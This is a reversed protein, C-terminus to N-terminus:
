VLCIEEATTSTGGFGLLSKTARLSCGCDGRLAKGTVTCWTSTLLFSSELISSEIGRSGQSGDFLEVELWIRGGQMFHQNSLRHIMFWGNLARALSFMQLFSQPSFICNYM